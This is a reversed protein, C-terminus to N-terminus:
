KLIIFSETVAEMKYTQKFSQTSKEVLLPTFIHFIQYCQEFLALFLRFNDLIGSKTVFPCFIYGLLEGNHAVAEM